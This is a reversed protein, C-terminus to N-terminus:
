AAASPAAVPIVVRLATGEGVPSEVDLQGGLAEVRDRLGVLGSGRSPDAGGVGDDRIALRLAADDAEGGVQVISAQAYKAANTLAESVVYYAAVEVPAPLRRVTDVELEVPIGSRRALNRLAPKLGGRSLIAPHIGRSIEQLEDVAGSIRQAAQDLRDRLEGLEPPVAAEAGRLALAAAVLRQQTGDHLDREIRRRTEDAAAVVRARSATLEARSERLSRTMTNFSRELEGIEGPGTEPMHVTLDGHALRDAMGAARRVPRLIMRALYAVFLAVFLVSGGLGVVAAITARRASTVARDQRSEALGREAAVLSNFDARITDIRRKGEIVAAGRVATRDRREARVLPVSYDRVYSGVAAEIRRARRHQAPVRTLALLEASVGPIARRAAEWPALLREDGTILFGREGTELDVVLRELRNAVSLVTQSHRALGAADRMNAISVFLVAFAASLLIALVSSALVTRLM